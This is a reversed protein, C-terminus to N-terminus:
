PLFYFSSSLKAYSAVLKVPLQGFAEVAGHAPNRTVLSTLNVRLSFPPNQKFELLPAIKVTKVSNDTM